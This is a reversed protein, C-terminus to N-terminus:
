EQIEYVMAFYKDGVVEVNSVGGPIRFVKATDEVPLQSPIKYLIGTGDLRRIWLRATPVDKPIRITDAGPKRYNFVAQTGQYYLETSGNERLVELVVERDPYNVCEGGISFDTFKPENPVTINVKRYAKDGVRRTYQAM